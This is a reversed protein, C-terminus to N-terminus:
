IKPTQSPEFQNLNLLSNVQIYHNLQTIPRQELPETVEPVEQVEPRVTLAEAASM